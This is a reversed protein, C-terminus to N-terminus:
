DKDLLDKQMDLISDLVLIQEAQKAVEITPHPRYEKYLIEKQEEWTRPIFSSIPFKTYWTIFDEVFVRFSSYLDYSYRDYFERMETVDEENFPM